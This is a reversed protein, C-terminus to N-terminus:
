KHQNTRKDNHVCSTILHAASVTLVILSCTAKERKHKISAGLHVHLHKAPRSSISVRYTEDLQGGLFPCFGRQNAVLPVCVKKDETHCIM